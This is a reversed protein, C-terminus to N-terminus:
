SRHHSYERVVEIDKELQPQYDMFVQQDANHIDANNVAMYREDAPAKGNIFHLHEIIVEPLYTCNGLGKGLALWFNDMFLHRLAPPAMFGLAQVIEASMMVATPLNEGQLLDDGYAIGPKDGIATALLIDWNQTIPLHDDGMFCIYDYDPAFWKAWHNLTANMGMSDAVVVKANNVGQLEDMLDRYTKMDDNDIAFVLETCYATANIQDYLRKANDGRGRTPVITLIRVEAGTAM